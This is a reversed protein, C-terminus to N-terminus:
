LRPITVQFTPPFSRLTGVTEGFLVQDRSGSILQMKIHALEERNAEKTKNPLASWSEMEAKEWSDLFSEIDNRHLLAQDLFAYWNCIRPDNSVNNYALINTNTGEAHVAAPPGCVVNNRFTAGSTDQIRAGLKDPTISSPNTGSSVHPREIKVGATDSGPLTKVVTASGNPPGAVDADLVQVDRMTGANEIISNEPLPAGVEKVQNAKSMQKPQHRVTTKQEPTGRNAPPETAPEPAQDHPQETSAVGPSASQTETTSSKTQSHPLWLGVVLVIVFSIGPILLKPWSERISRPPTKDPRGRYFAYTKEGYYLVVMLFGFVAVFELIATDLSKGRMRAYLAAIIGPAATFIWHVVSINAIFKFPKSEWIDGLLTM